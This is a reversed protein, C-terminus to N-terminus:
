SNETVALSLSDWTPMGKLDKMTQAWGVQGGWRDDARKGGGKVSGTGRPKNVMGGIWIVSTSAGPM